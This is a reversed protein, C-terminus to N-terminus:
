HDIGFRKLQEPLLTDHCPTPDCFDAAIQLLAQHAFHHRLLPAIDQRPGFLLEAMRRVRTPAHSATLKVYAEWAGPSEDLVYVNNVLFDRIRERGVLAARKCIPRSTLSFHYDWFPHRLESLYRTLRPAGAASLLPAITHWHAASEALAAIRRHPHNQPRLGAYVWPLSHETSLSFKEAHMWWTDWLQRHYHRTERSTTEPLTPVLLGAIGFLIAEAADGLISLPARRALAVMNVKNASYGLTAAWAEYWAQANGLAAAKRRFRWRKREVRHAAAALLLTHVQEVAMHALPTRCLPALERDLPPPLGLAERVREPPLYLVPVEHHQATRTYWGPPPAALVVHLVVRNYRVSAGHGQTEWDQASPDIEIDGRLRKGNLEIEARQFDPGPGRNWEGADLIRVPGHGQTEGTCGLLGVEWLEQVALESLPVPQEEAEAAGEVALIEALLRSYEGALRQPSLRSM